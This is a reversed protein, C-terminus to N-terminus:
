GVIEGGDQTPHDRATRRDLCAHRDDWLGQAAADVEVTGTSRVEPLGGLPVLVDPVGGPEVLDDREHDELPPRLEIGRECAETRVRRGSPAEGAREGVRRLLFTSRCRAPWAG